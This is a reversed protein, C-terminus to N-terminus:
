LASLLRELYNLSPVVDEERHAEVTLIPRLSNEKLYSFIGPFDIRGRGLALHEDWEGSNDHLHVEYLYPALHPLWQRWHSKAFASAHGPDFCWKLGECEEFVKLLIEYSPEFVNELCLKLGLSNAEEVLEKLSDLLKVLWKEVIERHYGPHYGTHLVVCEPEFLAGVRLAEKLRRVSARRVLSDMAGPSIDCFPAHVTFRIGAQLLREAVSAFDRFGFLDMAERDLSVEVWLRAEEVRELYKEKLLGFPVSVFVKWEKM